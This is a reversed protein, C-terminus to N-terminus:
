RSMQSSSLDVMQRGDALYCGRSARGKLRELRELTFRNGDMKRVGRKELDGQEKNAM